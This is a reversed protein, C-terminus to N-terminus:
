EELELRTWVEYPKNKRKMDHFCWATLFVGTLSLFVNALLFGPIRGVSEEFNGGVLYSAIFSLGTLGRAVRPGHCRGTGM